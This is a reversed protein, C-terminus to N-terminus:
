IRKTVLPILIWDFVNDYEFGEKMFLEKFMRKLYTYDPKEEFKLRRCYEFYKIFQEICLLNIAENEIGEIVQCEKM